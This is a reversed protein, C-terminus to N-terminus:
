FSRYNIYIQKTETIYIKPVIERLINVINFTPPTELVLVRKIM